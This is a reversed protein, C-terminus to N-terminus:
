FREREPATWIGPGARGPVQAARQNLHRRREETPSSPQKFSAAPPCSQWGALHTPHQQSWDTKMIATQGQSLALDTTVHGVTCIM